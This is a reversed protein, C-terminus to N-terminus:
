LLERKVSSVTNVTAIALSSRATPMDAKATWTDIDPDYMEVATLGVLNIGVGGIAYIKGDVVCTSLVARGTIMDTKQSWSDTVPDYAELTLVPQANPESTCGGIVYILGDVVSSCHLLRATPIDTKQVWADGQAWGSSTMDLLGVVVFVSGLATQKLNQMVPIM